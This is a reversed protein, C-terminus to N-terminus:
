VVGNEDYNIKLIIMIIMVISMITMTRTLMVMTMTSKDNHDDDVDIDKHVIDGNNNIKKERRNRKRDELCDIKILTIILMMRISFIM